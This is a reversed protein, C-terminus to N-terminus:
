QARKRGNPTTLAEIIRWGRAVRQCALAPGVGSVTAAMTLSVLGGDIRVPVGNSLSRKLRAEFGHTKGTQKISAAKRMEETRQRGSNAISIKKKTEESAVRGRLAESISARHTESLKRGRLTAAMRQIAAVGRETKLLAIRSQSMAAKAEQPFRYGSVGEGGGTINALTESGDTIKGISAILEIERLHASEEAAHVSDISHLPPQGNRYLKDIIRKKISRSNDGPRLHQSIRYGKGKGVYFPEGCPRSILYVYFKFGRAAADRITNLVDKNIVAAGM